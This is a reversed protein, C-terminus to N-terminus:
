APRWEAWGGDEEADGIVESHDKIDIEFDSAVTVVASTLDELTAHTELWVYGSLDGIDIIADKGNVLGKVRYVWLGFSRKEDDDWFVRIETVNLRNEATM